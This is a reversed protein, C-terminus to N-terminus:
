WLISSMLFMIDCHVRYIKICKGTDWILRCFTLHQHIFCLPPVSSLSICFYLRGAKVVSQIYLCPSPPSLTVSIKNRPSWPFLTAKIVSWPSQFSNATQLSLLYIREPYTPNMTGGAGHQEGFCYELDKKLFEALKRDWWREREASSRERKVSFAPM